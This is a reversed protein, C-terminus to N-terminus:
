ELPLPPRRFHTLVYFVRYLGKATGFIPARLWRRNAIALLPRRLEPPVARELGYTDIGRSRLRALEDGLRDNDQALAAGLRPESDAARVYVDLLQKATRRWTLESGAARISAVLREREPGNCLVPAVRQASVEADWPVLLADSAPLLEELSTQPAFLCPLGANAAEFPVLGFGEFTSPYIIATTRELLWAKGAENVAALDLVHADLEPRALLYAAEEGASGGSALHGGALVLMGDWGESTRLAELVRIAFLRNKHLLDTGLYLLFPRGGIQESGPPPVPPPALEALHHDTGLHVISVRDEEVIGARRAERAAHKSFFIVRDAAGLAARTLSRHEAWPGYGAFYAPNLYGILDQHTVVMRRGVSSLLELDGYSSIQYPRHVIDTRPTEPQVEGADITAVRPMRALLAAAYDGLDHPVVVRVELSELENLAAILELTHVQTGAIFRTLCRGDITVSLGNFIRRGVGLARALSGTEDGAVESLWADYYGYRSRLIADEALSISGRHAVLVDDALVNSMGHVLLRQCFDVVEGHGLAEDFGGVLDLAARRVYLCHGIGTPLEPYIRRSTERLRRAAQDLTWDLPLTPSGHNREPVSAIGASNSLPSVTGVRSDSEAAHSMAEFWSPPVVCDSHLILLDAPAILNAVVNVNGAFGLEREQRLYGVQRRMEGTAHLNSLFREIAPDASADAVLVVVHEPTNAFVSKLCLAFSDLAGDVPICIAAEGRSLGLDSDAALRQLSM